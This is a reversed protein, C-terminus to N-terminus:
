FFVFLRSWKYLLCGFVLFFLTVGEGFFVGRYWRFSKTHDM